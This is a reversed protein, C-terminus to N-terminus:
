PRPAKPALPMIVETRPPQEDPPSLYVEWPEGLPQRGHERMWAEIREYAEQVQEYPGAHIATAADGGPLDILVVEGTEAFDGAVTFGVETDFGDALLHYRGIAQDIPCAQKGAEAAVAGFALEVAGGIEAFTAKARRVAARRPPINKVVVAGM